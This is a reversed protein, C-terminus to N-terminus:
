AISGTLDMLDLDQNAAVIWGIESRGIQSGGLARAAPRGVRRAGAFASWVEFGM